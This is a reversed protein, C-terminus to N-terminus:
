KYNYVPLFFIHKTKFVKKKHGREKKRYIYIKLFMNM